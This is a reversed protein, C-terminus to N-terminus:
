KVPERLITKLKELATKRFDSLYIEHHEGNHELKNAQMFKQLKLLSEPETEFSGVHLIQVCKGETMTFFEIEDLHPIAEKQDVDNIAVELSFLKVFDPMRILLRYSWENRPIKKPAEEMSIEPYKSLDFRWLGELKPVVFDNGEAKCAFKIKYAVPYLAQIKRGFEEGSPDGVGKISIYNASALEVLEPEAKASYYNRYKKTLDLKEM